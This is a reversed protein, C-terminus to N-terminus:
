KSTDYMVEDFDCSSLPSTKLMAQHYRGGDVAVGGVLEYGTTLLAEVATELNNANAHRLVQYDYGYCQKWEATVPSTLLVVAVCLGLLHWLKKM